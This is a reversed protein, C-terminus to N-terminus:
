RGQLRRQAARCDRMETIKQHLLALMDRNTPSIRQPDVRRLRPALAPGDGPPATETLAAPKAPRKATPAPPVAALDFLLPQHPPSPRLAVVERQPPDPEVNLAIPADAVRSPDEPDKPFHDTAAASEPTQATPWAGSPDPADPLAATDALESVFRVGQEKLIKQVGRITLGQEHLLQKIGGLLAVDAPRYYRRGGARKVPKIQSFRSEWFRLVHAPTELAEAVESITRFAEASKTM